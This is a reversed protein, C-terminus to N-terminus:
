RVGLNRLLFQLLTQDGAPPREGGDGPVYLVAKVGLQDCREKIARAHKPHHVYHGRDKPPGGPQPSFLYVPPDDSTILGRMDVDARIRKGEPSYLDEAKKLGYFEAGESYFKEAPVGLVEEWQLVDCTFQTSNAGAASLRSSERLVPDPNKPDALDDHFALWLSTSAGASGGYAAIRKKDINWEAARYRMYQIARACDRLIDQIPATTRFRYNIAAFSVGADLASKVMPTDRVKAKDGGVFGGGHIFVILPTPKTSRAQWLDLVNREHPGYRMNEFTPPVQQGFAFAALGLLLVILRHIM